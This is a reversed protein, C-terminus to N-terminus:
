EKKEVTQDYYEQDSLKSFDIEQKAKGDPPIKSQLNEDIVLSPRSEKIIEMKVDFDVVDGKSDITIEDLNYTSVILDVSDKNIKGDFANKLAEIKGRNTERKTNEEKFNDFEKTKVILSEKLEEITQDSKSYEDIDKQMKDMQEKTESLENSSTALEDVKKNYQEKPIFSKGIEVNIAKELETTYVEGLIEKYNM